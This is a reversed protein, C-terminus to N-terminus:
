TNGAISQKLRKPLKEYVLEYSTKILEKLEANRLKNRKKVAIWKSKALYPAPVVGEIETLEEFREPDSKISMINEATNDMAAIVFIKGGVKFLLHDEWQIEETAGKFSM